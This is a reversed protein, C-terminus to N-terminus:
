PQLRRRIREGVAFSVWLMLWWVVGHRGAVQAAVALVLAALLLRGRLRERQALAPGLALGGLLAVVNWAVVSGIHV